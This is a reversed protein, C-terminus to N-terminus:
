TTIKSRSAKNVASKLGARQEFVRKQWVVYFVRFAHEVIVDRKHIGQIILTYGFISSIAVLLIIILPDSEVIPAITAWQILLIILNCVGFFILALGCAILFHAQVIPRAVEVGFLKPDEEEIWYSLLLSMEYAKKSGIWHEIPTKKWDINLFQGVALRIQNALHNKASNPDADKDGILIEEIKEVRQFFSRKQFAKRYLMDWIHGLLFSVLIILITSLFPSLGSLFPIAKQWRDIGMTQAIVMYIGALSISGPLVFALIDRLIVYEYFGQINM